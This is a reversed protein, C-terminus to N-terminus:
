CRGVAAARRCAARAPGGAGARALPTVLADLSEVHVAFLAGAPVGAELAVLRWVRARLADPCRPSRTPTWPGTGWPPAAPADGALRDLFDADERLMEARRALAAVVGPGLDTELALLLRAPGSGRSRRTRTTRTRGRTSGRLAACAAETTPGRWPSCRGRSCAAGARCVPCRGPGPAAPWGWCCRSPRTTGPTGSCCAAAAGLRGRRGRLARYRASRAAAEPGTGDAGCTVRWCTSRTWGWTPCGAAAKAAVDASGAQLGHDVVLAGARLGARAGRVRDGGGPGALRRRRQLAVLVLAGPPCTALEARVAVGPRAAVARTRDRGTMRPRASGLGAPEGIESRRRCRRPRPGSPTSGTSASRTSSARPRLRAGDRYQRMKAELGLLRRLMRDVRGAGRRRQPSSARPDGRRTPIVQPGVEDMMVDAHGELLSMVATMRGIKARQEPTAFVELWGGGGSAAGGAANRADGAPPGGAARPRAGHRRAARAGPEVMHDRLWPVATFQM